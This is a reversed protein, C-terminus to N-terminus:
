KFISLYHYLPKNKLTKINEVKVLIATGVMTTYIAESMLNIDVTEKIEQNRKAKKLNNYIIQSIIKKTEKLLEIIIKNETPLLEAYSNCILCGKQNSDESYTQYLSDFLIKFSNKVTKESQIITNIYHVTHKRYILFCHFFLNEKDQFTNYLSARNVGSENVLEQISTQYFGKNWFLKTASTLVEEEKIKKEIPM